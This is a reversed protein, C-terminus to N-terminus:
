TNELDWKMFIHPVKYCDFKVVYHTPQNGVFRGGYCRHETVIGVAGVHNGGMHMYSKTIKIKDGVKFKMRRIM